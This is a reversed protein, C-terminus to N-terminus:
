SHKVDVIKLSSSDVIEQTTKNDVQNVREKEAERNIMSIVNVICFRTFAWRTRRKILGQKFAWDIAREFSEVHEKSLYITFFVRDRRRVNSIKRIAEKQLAKM